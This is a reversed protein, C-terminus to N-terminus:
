PATADFGQAPMAVNGEAFVIAEDSMGGAAVGEGAKAIGGEVEQPSILNIAYDVGITFHKWDRM